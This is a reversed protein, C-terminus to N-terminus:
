EHTSPQATDVRSVSPLMVEVNYQKRLTGLLDNYRQRRKEILLREHVEDKALEFDAPKGQHVTALPQLVFYGLLTKIPFSVENVSLTAAVKWLEPPYLTKQSYYKNTTFSLVSSSTTSDQMIKKIVQEWSTGQSVSSVFAMARERTTFSIVNMKMMEDRVFFESAHQDFYTRQEDDSITISDAYVHQELFQQVALQREADALQRQFTETHELGKRQAEQFLLQTNIWSAVYNHLRSEFAVSATDIATRAEELTLESDGVRAIM